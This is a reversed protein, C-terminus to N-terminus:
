MGKYWNYNREWQVKMCYRHFDYESLETRSIRHLRESERKSIWVCTDFTLGTRDAGLYRLRWYYYRQLATPYDIGMGIQGHKAILLCMRSYMRFNREAQTM